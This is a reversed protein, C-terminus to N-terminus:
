SYKHRKKKCLKGCQNCMAHTSPNFATEALSVSNELINSIEDISNEDQDYPWTKWLNVQLKM